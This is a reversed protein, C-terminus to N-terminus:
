TNDSKSPPIAGEELMKKYYARTIPYAALVAIGAIYFVHEWWPRRRWIRTKNEHHTEAHNVGSHSQIKNSYVSNQDTVRLQFLAAITTYFYISIFIANM